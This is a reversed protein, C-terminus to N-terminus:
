LFGKGLQFISEEQERIKPQPPAPQIPALTKPTPAQKIIQPVKKQIAEMQIVNGINENVQELAQRKQPLNKVSSSNKEGNGMKGDNSVQLEYM